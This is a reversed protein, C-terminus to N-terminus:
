ELSCCWLGVEVKMMVASEAEAGEDGSGWIKIENDNAKRWDERRREDEVQEVM